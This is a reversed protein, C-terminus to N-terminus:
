APDRLLDRWAGELAEISAAGRGELIAPRPGHVANTVVVAVATGLEARDIDRIAVTGGHRRVREILGARAIGPLVAGDLRPTVLVGDCLAFVNCTTTELVRGGAEILLADDAGSAVARRQAWGYLARSVSKLGALPDDRRIGVGVECLRVPGRAQRARATLCWTPQAAVGGTLTLRLVGNGLGRRQLLEGAAARLEPPPAFPLGLREAGARLRAWHRSWLPLEGGRAGMTEFVGYGGCFGADDAAVAVGDESWCGNIWALSM